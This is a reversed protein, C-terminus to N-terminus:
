WGPRARQGNQHRCKRHKALVVELAAKRVRRHLVHANDGQAQTDTARQTDGCGQQVAHEVAKGLRKGEAHGAVDLVGKTRTAQGLDLTDDLNGGCGGREGDQCQETKTGERGKAHKDGLEQSKDGTNGGTGHPSIM